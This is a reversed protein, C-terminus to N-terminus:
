HASHTGAAEKPAPWDPGTWATQTQYKAPRWVEKGFQTTRQNVWQSTGRHPNSFIVDNAKKPGLRKMIASTEKTLFNYAYQNDAKGQVRSHRAAPNLEWKLANRECFLIASEPSEFRAHMAIPHMTDTSSLWGMLPNSWKNAHNVRLSWWKGAAVGSTMASSSARGIIVTRDKMADSVAAHIRM